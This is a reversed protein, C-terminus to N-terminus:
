SSAAETYVPAFGGGPTRFNTTQGHYLRAALLQIAGRYAYARVDLKLPVEAGDVEITRSSPPVLAQAVYGGEIIREWTKKTLKSGRYAAKSGYGTCPKFFLHARRAWLADAGLGEFSEPHWAAAPDGSRARETEGLPVLFSSRPFASSARPRRRSAVAEGWDRVAAPPWGHGERPLECYVADAKKKRWTEAQARVDDVPVVDDREGHFCWLRVGKSLLASHGPARPASAAGVSAFADADKTGLTWAGTGGEGLGVLHVRELDVHWRSAVEDVLTQVWRQNRTTTWPWELATPCLVLFGRQRAEDVLVPLLEKGRGRVAKPNQPDTGGGHLAVVLPRPDIPDLREPVYLSYTGRDEEDEGGTVAGLAGEIRQARQVGVAGSHGVREVGALLLLPSLRTM